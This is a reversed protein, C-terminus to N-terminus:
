AEDPFTGEANKLKWLGYTLLPVVYVALFGYTITGYGRAILSVLGMGNALVAAGLLLGIAVAMRMPRPMTVARAAYVAAIRENVAHIMGAGTEIFTGFLIIPFLLAFFGGGKLVGLLFTVPLGSDSAALAPFQGIMALFFLAAPIMALPGALLGAVLADRRCTLHRVAFLTVPVAALNYGAYAIGSAAWGGTMPLAVLNAKMAGGFQVLNWIVFLIYAGYLAFSWFAFFREIAPTGFFVLLGIIAMMVLTGALAPVAFADAVLTGATAGIVSIVLVLMLIFLVEFLIWGPGLLDGFFSRYDYDGFRRAFEFTAAVVLSFILTAVGIGLLGGLPGHPMFFQRLEAGSGYAGGIIVSQFILGPLFYRTFLNNGM